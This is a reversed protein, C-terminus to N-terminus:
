RTWLRRWGEGRQGPECRHLVHIQGGAEREQHVLVVFFILSSLLSARLNVRLCANNKRLHSSPCWHVNMPAAHWACLCGWMRSIYEGASELSGSQEGRSLFSTKWWRQSTILQAARSCSGCRHRERRKRVELIEHCFFWQQWVYKASLM